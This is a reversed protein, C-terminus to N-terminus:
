TIELIAERTLREVVAAADVRVGALLAVWDLPKILAPLVHNVLDCGVRHVETALPL